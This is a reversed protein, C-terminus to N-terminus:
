KTQDSVFSGFSFGRDIRALEDTVKLSLDSVSQESFIVQRMLNEAYVQKDKYQSYFAFTLAAIGTVTTQVVASKAWEIESLPNFIIDLSPWLLVCVAAIGSLWFFIKNLLAYSKAKIYIDYVLLFKQEAQQKNETSAQKKVSEAYKVLLSASTQNQSYFSSDDSDPITM